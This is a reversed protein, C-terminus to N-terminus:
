GLGSRMCGTLFPSIVVSTTGTTEERTKFETRIARVERRQGTREYTNLM